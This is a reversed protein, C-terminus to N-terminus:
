WKVKVVVATMDDHQASNGVFQRVDDVIKKLISGASLDDVDITGLLNRLREDGFFVRNSNQAEPIGDTVFVVVDGRRLPLSKQRYGNTEVIGLPHRPGSGKLIHIRSERKLLPENLGANTFTM